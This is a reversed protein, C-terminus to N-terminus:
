RDSAQCRFDINLEDVFIHHDAFEELTSELERLSSCTKHLIGQELFKAELLISQVLKPQRMKETQIAKTIFVVKKGDKELKAVQIAKEVLLITKGYGYSGYIFM